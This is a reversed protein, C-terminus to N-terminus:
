STTEEKPTEKKEEAGYHKCSASAASALGIVFLTAFMAGLLKKM